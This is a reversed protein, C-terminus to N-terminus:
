TQTAEILKKDRQHRKSMYPKTDISKVTYEEDKIEKKNKTHHQRQWYTKM